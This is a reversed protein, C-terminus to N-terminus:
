WRYSVANLDDTKEYHPSFVANEFHRTLISRHDGIGQAALGSM